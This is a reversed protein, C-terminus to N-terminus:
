LFVDSTLWVMEIFNVKSKTTATTSIKFFWAGVDDNTNKNLIFFFGCDFLVDFEIICTILTLLVKM